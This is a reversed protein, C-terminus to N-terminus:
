SQDVKSMPLLQFHPTCTTKNLFLQVMKRMTGDQAMIEIYVCCM